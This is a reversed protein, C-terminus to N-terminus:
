DTAAQFQYAAGKVLGDAQLSMKIKGCNPMIALVKKLRNKHGAKKNYIYDIYIHTIHYINILVTITIYRIARHISM